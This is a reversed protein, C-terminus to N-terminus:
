HVYLSLSSNVNRMIKKDCFIVKSILYVKQFTYLVTSQGKKLSVGTANSTKAYTAETILQHTPARCIGSDAASALAWSAYTNCVRTSSKDALGYEALSGRHLISNKISKKTSLIISVLGTDTYFHAIISLIKRSNLHRISKNSGSHSVLFCSFCSLIVLLNKAAERHNM